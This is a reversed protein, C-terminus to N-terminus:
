TPPLAPENDIQDRSPRSQILQRKKWSGAEPGDISSGLISSVADFESPSLRSTVANLCGGPGLWLPRLEGRREKEVVARLPSSRHSAAVRGLRM